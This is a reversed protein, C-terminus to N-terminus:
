FVIGKLYEQPFERSEAAKNAESFQTKNDRGLHVSVALAM